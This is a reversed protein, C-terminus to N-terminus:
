QVWFGIAAASKSNNCMNRLMRANTSLSSLLTFSRLLLAFLYTHFRERLRHRFANGSCNIQLKENLLKSKKLKVFSVIVFLLNFAIEYASM